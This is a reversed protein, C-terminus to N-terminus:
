KIPPAYQIGGRTWLANLGRAIQLPSQSGVNREFIQGYNGVAKITDVCWNPGLGVGKGLTGDVDLLLRIDENDSAKMEDVNAQTVGLEEANLLAFGVWKVINFWQEDGQRVVPGLPEKSITEPLVIHDDPNALSLRTSYLGSSDTTYATCKGTEYAAVAGAGDDFVLPTLKMKNQEFYTVLNAESTTGKAVCVSTGSLDLASTFGDARRVMFGQGDYYNVLGFALGLSAERSMNWTTNRVLVDIKGSKLADFRDTTTLPTFEVAKPDGLAAAAIARCYDVDFGKWNDGSDSAAFGALGSNVGCRVVGRTKVDALTAAAAVGSLLAIIAGAVIPTILTKM